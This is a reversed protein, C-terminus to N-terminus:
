DRTIEITGSSPYSSEDAVTGDGGEPAGEPATSVPVEVEVTGSAVSPAPQPVGSQRAKWRAIAQELDAYPIM